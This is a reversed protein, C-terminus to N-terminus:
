GLEFYAAIADVVAALQAQQIGPFVPLSLVKSALRESVPFAGPRHYLDRYARALHLPPQPYHRWHQSRDLAPAAIRFTAGARTLKPRARIRRLRVAFELGPHLRRGLLLTSGEPRRTSGARRTLLRFATSGTRTAIARGSNDNWSEGMVQAGWRRHSGALCVPKGVPSGDLWARWWSRRGAIEKVAVHSATGVPM